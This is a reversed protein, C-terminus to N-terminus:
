RINRAHASYGSLHNQSFDSRVDAAKARKEADAEQNPRQGSFRTLPPFTSDHLVRTTLLWAAM